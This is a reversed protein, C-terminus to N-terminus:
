DAGADSAMSASSAEVTMSAVDGAVPVNGWADVIYIAFTATTTGTPVAISVDTPPIDRDWNPRTEYWRGAAPSNYDGWAVGSKPTATGLYILFGLGGGSITPFLTSPDMQVNTVGHRFVLRKTGAPLAYSCYVSGNVMNLSSSTARVKGGGSVVIAWADTRAADFYVVSRGCHGGM